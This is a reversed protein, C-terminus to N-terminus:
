REIGITSNDWTRDAGDSYVPEGLNRKPAPEPAFPDFPTRPRSKSITEYGAQAVNLDVPLEYHAPHKQPNLPQVKYKQARPNFM